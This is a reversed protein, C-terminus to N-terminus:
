NQVIALDLMDILKYPDYYIIGKNKMENVNIFQVFPLFKNFTPSLLSYGNKVANLSKIEAITICDSQIDFDIPKIM